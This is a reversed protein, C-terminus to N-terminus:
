LVFRETNFRGIYIKFLDPAVWAYTFEDYFIGVQIPLYLNLNFEEKREFYHTSLLM